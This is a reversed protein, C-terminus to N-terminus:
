RSARSNPSVVSPPRNTRTRQFAYSCGTEGAFVNRPGPDRASPRLHRLPARATGLGSAFSRPRRCSRVRPRCAQRAFDGVVRDPRAPKVRGAIEGFTVVVDRECPKRLDRGDRFQRRRSTSCCSTRTRSDTAASGATQRATDRRDRRRLQKRARRFVVDRVERLHLHVRQRKGFALQGAFEAGAIRATSGAAPSASAAPVTFHAAIRAAAVSASASRRCTVFRIFSRLAPREPFPGATAWRWDADRRQRRGIRPAHGARYRRQVGECRESNIEQVARRKGPYPSANVSCTCYVPYECLKRATHSTPLQSAPPM